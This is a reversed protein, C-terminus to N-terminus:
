YATSGGPTNIRLVVAKVTRDRAAHNLKETLLSVPNEGETFLGKQTANTIVGTVDVVAIKDVVMFGPERILVTEDLTKDSPIPVIKYGGTPGCGVLGAVAILVAIRTLGPVCRGLHQLM